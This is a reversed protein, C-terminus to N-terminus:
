RSPREVPKAPALALLVIGIVGFMVVGVLEQREIMKQHVQVTMVTAHVISSYATFAILSRNAYTNRSALLLFVGLTAYISAMMALAPEQRMFAIVLYAAACFLLGVIILVVQLARQRM